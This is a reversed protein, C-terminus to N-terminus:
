SKLGHDQSQISLRALTADEMFSAPDVSSGVAELALAKEIIQGM